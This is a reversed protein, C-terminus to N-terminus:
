NETKIEKDVNETNSPTTPIVEKKPEEQPEIKPEIKPEKKSENKLEKKPKTKSKRCNANQHCTLKSMYRFLKGCRRCEYPHTRDLFKM